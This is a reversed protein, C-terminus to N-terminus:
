WDFGAVEDNEKEKQDGKSLVKFIRGQDSIAM